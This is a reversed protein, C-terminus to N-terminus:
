GEPNPLVHQLASAALAIREEENTDTVMPSDRVAMSKAMELAVSYERDLCTLQEYM